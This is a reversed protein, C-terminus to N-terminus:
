RPGCSRRDAEQSRRGELRAAQRHRSAAGRFLYRAREHRRERRDGQCRAPPSEFSHLRRQPLRRRPHALPRCPGSAQRSRRRPIGGHLRRTRRRPCASRCPLRRQRRRAAQGCARTGPGRRDAELAVATARKAKAARAGPRAPEPRTGQGELTRDIEESVRDGVKVKVEEVSGGTPAPVEMSAKDSELTILPDDVKITNGPQVHVEIIPVDRYDGIDPVKVEITEYVGSPSGYGAPSGTAPAASRAPEKPPTAPAGAAEMVVILDGMSVRDGPKVKVERVTGAQSAPVEMSAKDSELTILPDDVSITAGPQVHVEIIPVDKYNGIDPVRIENSM